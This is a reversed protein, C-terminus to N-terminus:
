DPRLDQVQMPLNQLALREDDCLASISELKRVLLTNRNFRSADM